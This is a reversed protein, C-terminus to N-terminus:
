KTHSNSTDKRHALLKHYRKNVDENNDWVITNEGKIGLNSFIGYDGCSPDANYDGFDMNEFKKTVNDRDRIRGKLTKEYDNDIVNHGYAYSVPKLKDIDAKTLKKNDAFFNAPSYTSSFNTDDEVYLTDYNDIGVYNNDMMNFAEPNGSHPILSMPGEGYAKEWAANFKGLDMRINKNFLQEHTNEIDEHERVLEIDRLRKFADKESISEMENRDFGHKRDMELKIKDFDAKMEDKPKNTIDTKQAEFYEEADRKLEYHGSDVQSSLKYMDDYESRSDENILVNYAHTILEFMEDDGKPMDPHFEKALKRYAVKIDKRTCDHSVNLVDYLNVTSM